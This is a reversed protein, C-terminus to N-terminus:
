KNYLANILEINDKMFGHLTKGFLYTFEEEEEFSSFAYGSEFIVGHIIEHLLVANQFDKNEFDNSMKIIKGHKNCQGDLLDGDPAKLVDEYKLAYDHHGIKITEM